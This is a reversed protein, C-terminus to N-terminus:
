DVVIDVKSIVVDKFFDKKVGYIIFYKFRICIENLFFNYFYWYVLIFKINDQNYIILVYYGYM